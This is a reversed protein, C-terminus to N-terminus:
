ILEVIPKQTYSPNKELFVIYQAEWDASSLDFLEPFKDKMFNYFVNLFKRDINPITKGIFYGDLIAHGTLEHM